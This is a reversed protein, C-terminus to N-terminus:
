FGYLPDLDDFGSHTVRGGGGSSVSLLRRRVFTLVCTMSSAHGRQLFLSGFAFKVEFCTFAFADARNQMAHVFPAPVSWAHKECGADIGATSRGDSTTVSFVITVVGAPCSTTTRM